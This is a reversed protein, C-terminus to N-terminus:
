FDTQMKAVHRVVIFLLFFHVEARRNVGLHFYFSNCIISRILHECDQLHVQKTERQDSRSRSSGRSSSRKRAKAM